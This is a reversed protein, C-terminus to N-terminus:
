IEKDVHDCANTEPALSVWAAPYVRLLSPSKSMVPMTRYQSLIRLKSSLFDSFKGAPSFLAMGHVPCEAIM